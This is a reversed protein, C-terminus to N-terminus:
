VEDLRSILYVSGGYARRHREDFDVHELGTWSLSRVIGSEIQNRIGDPNVAEDSGSTAVAHNLITRVTERM